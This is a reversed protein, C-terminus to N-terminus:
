RINLYISNADRESCAPMERLIPHQDTNLIRTVPDVHYPEALYEPDEVVAEWRLINGTRTIRETVKLDWGHIYAMEGGFWTQDNFGESVIVLTDGEWRGLPDGMWTGFLMHEEDHQRGDMPITRYFNYLNRYFLIIENDLQVIREPAGMRPVGPPQCHFAPDHVIGARDLERVKEWYEPKYIPLDDNTRSMVYQDNEFNATDGDRAPLTVFVDGEPPKEPISSNNFSNSNATFSGNWYGNLNPKGGKTRPTPLASAKNIVAQRDSQGFSPQSFIAFTICIAVVSTIAPLPTRM